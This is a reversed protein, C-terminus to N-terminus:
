VKRLRLLIWNALNAWSDEVDIEQGQGIFQESCAERAQNGRLSQDEVESFV